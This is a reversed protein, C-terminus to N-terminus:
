RSCLEVILQEQVPLSVEDRTPVALVKAQVTEPQVQLWSPVQRSKMLPARESVREVNNKKNSIPPIFAGLRRGLGAIGITLRDNAGIIRGYSRASMGMASNGVAMGAAGATVKKIFSRRDSSM